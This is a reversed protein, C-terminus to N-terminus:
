KSQPSTGVLNLVSSLSPSAPENGRDNNEYSIDVRASVVQMTQGGERVILYLGEEDRADLVAVADSGTDVFRIVGEQVVSDFQLRYNALTVLHDSIRITGDTTKCVMTTANNPGQAFAIGAVLPLCLLSSVAKKFM